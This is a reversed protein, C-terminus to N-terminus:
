CMNKSLESYALNSAPYATTRCMRNREVFKYELPPDLFLYKLLYTILNYYMKIFAM